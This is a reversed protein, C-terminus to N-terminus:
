QQAPINPRFLEKLVKRNKYFIVCWVFILTAPIILINFLTWGNQCNCLCLTLIILISMDCFGFLFAKKSSFYKLVKMGWNIALALLYFMAIVALVCLVLVMILGGFMLIDKM